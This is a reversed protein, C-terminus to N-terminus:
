YFRRMNYRLLFAMRCLPVKEQIIAVLVLFGQSVTSDERTLDCRSRSLGAFCYFRRKYSQLSFSFTRRFLLVKEQIIAVLFLFTRRFLLVKEQIIM